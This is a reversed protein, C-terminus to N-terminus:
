PTPLGALKFFNKLITRGDLYQDDYQEPHFQTGYMLRHKHKIAEIPCEDTAALVIFEAPLKTIHWAHMERVVPRDPLGEFLPDRQTIQVPMFGWEKFQGANYSPRPDAEGARLPRMYAIKGGFAEAILQHGGCFGFLPLSSERVIKLLQERYGDGLGKDMANILLVRFNTRPLDTAKLQTYHIVVCRLGSLEMVRARMKALYAMHGTDAPKKLADRVTDPHRLDILCVAPPSNTAESALNDYVGNIGSLLGSTYNTPEARAALACCVCSLALKTVANM